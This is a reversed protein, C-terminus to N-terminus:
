AERTFHVHFANLGSLDASFFVISQSVTYARFNISLEARRGDCLPSLSALFSCHWEVRSDIDDNFKGDAGYLRKAAM